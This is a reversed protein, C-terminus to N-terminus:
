DLLSHGLRRHDRLRRGHEPYAERRGHKVNAVRANLDIPHRSVPRHQNLRIRV